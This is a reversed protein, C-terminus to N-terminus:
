ANFLLISLILLFSCYFVLVLIWLEWYSADSLCYVTPTWKLAVSSSTEYFLWLKTRSMLGTVLELFVSCILLIKEELLIFFIEWFLSSMLYELGTLFKFFLYILDSFFSGATLDFIFNSGTVLLFAISSSDPFGKTLSFVFRNIVKVFNVCGIFSWSLIFDLVICWPM